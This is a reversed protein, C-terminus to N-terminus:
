NGFVNTFLINTFTSQLFTESAAGHDLGSAKPVIESRVPAGKSKMNNYTNTTNISYVWSDAESHFLILSDSPVFNVLSNQEAIGLLETDTGTVVGDIFTSKFLNQPNRNINDYIKLYAFDYDANQFVSNDSESFIQEFPKSYGMYNKFTSLVWLYSSLYMPAFNEDKSVVEEIFGKIDYPGAGAYTKVIQIDHASEQLKKHLAVSAYGGESYGVIVVKRSVQLHQMQEAFEIYTRLFDLSSQGLSEAHVYPHVMAESIGYGIYDPVLAACGFISASLYAIATEASPQLLSGLSPAERRNGITGHHYILAPIHASINEPMVFIGSAKVESNNCSTKYEVRYVNIGTNVFPVLLAYNTLMSKLQNASVTGMSQVNVLFDTKVDEQEKRCSAFMLVAVIIMFTNGGFVRRKLEAKLRHLDLFQCGHLFYSALIGSMYQKMM